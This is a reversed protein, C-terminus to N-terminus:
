DRDAIDGHGALRREAPRGSERGGADKIFVDRDRAEGLIRGFQKLTAEFRATAEPELYPEFLVLASRMRRIAIRAQHLPEPDDTSCLPLNAIFQGLGSGIIRRFGEVVPVDRPLEIEEAKHAKPKEGAALRYGRM